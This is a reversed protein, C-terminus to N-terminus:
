AKVPGECRVVRLPSRLPSSARISLLDLSEVTTSVQSRLAWAGAVGGHGYCRGCCGACFRRRVCLTCPVLYTEMPRWLDGYTEWCRSIMRELIGRSVTFLSRSLGQRPQVPAEDESSRDERYM